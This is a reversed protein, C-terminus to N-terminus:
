PGIENWLRTWRAPLPWTNNQTGWYTMVDAVGSGALTLARPQTAGATGATDFPVDVQLANNPWASAADGGVPANAGSAPLRVHQQNLCHSIEHAAYPGDSPPTYCVNSPIDYAEGVRFTNPILVWITGDEDPCDAGAWEWFAEWASCNHEDDFDDLMDRRENAIASVSTGSTRNETTHGALAAIGATPTPLLPVAGRLTAICVADTPFGSGNWNVRVYRFQLTRRSQYTISPCNRSLTQSQGVYGGVAGFGRVWVEVQYTATGWCWGTPLMFNLSHNTTNFSPNAVVTMSTGPTAVMPATAPAPDIWGSWVGNRYMRIRGSVNPVVDGGWGALGHGLLVRVVTPKSAVMEVSHTATQISQTVQIGVVRLAPPKTTVVSVTRSVAGGCVGSVTITYQWV